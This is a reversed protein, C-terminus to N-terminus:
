RLLDGYRAGNRGGYSQQTGVTRLPAKSVLRQLSLAPNQGLKKSVPQRNAPERPATEAVSLEKSYWIFPVSYGCHPQLQVIRLSHEREPTESEAPATAAWGTDSGGIAGQVAM